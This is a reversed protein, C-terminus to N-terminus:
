SRLISSLAARTCLFAAFVAWRTRPSSKSEGEGRYRWLRLCCRKETELNAFMHYNRPKPIKWNGQLAPIRLCPYPRTLKQSSPNKLWNKGKQSESQQPLLKKLSLTMTRLQPLKQLMRPDHVCCGHQCPAPSNAPCGCMGAKKFCWGM